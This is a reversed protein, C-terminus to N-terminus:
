RGEAILRQFAPDQRIREWEPAVRLWGRSLWRQEDLNERLLRVAPEPQGLRAHILALQLSTEAAVGQMGDGAALAQARRGERVAADADGLEAHLRALSGRVLAEIRPPLPARELLPALVSRGSRLEGTAETTRGAAAHAEARAQHFWALGISDTGFHAPTLDFLTRHGGPTWALYAGQGNQVTSLVFAHKGVERMGSGLVSRARATDMRAAIAIEARLLYAVQSAPERALVEDLLAESGAYDGVARRARALTLVRATNGPDLSLARESLALAERYRADQHALAALRELAEPDNPQLELARRYEAAARPAAHEITLLYDGHVLRALALEPNLQLARDISSKARQRVQESADYLGGYLALQFEGLRAHASAFAPDLAVARSYLDIARLANAHWSTLRAREAAENGRLFYDYADLNETPRRTLARTERATLQAQLADAISRAIESQVAFIDTIDRDYNSAWLNEDTSARVLKAGIRVQDGARRVTGELVYAVGLERAIEPLSMSTGKYRMISTRSIVRLDGIVALNTLIEDTIGDSFYENSTDDSLNVFPLVAISRDVEELTLTARQFSGGLLVFAGGAFALVLVGGVAAIRQGSWRGSAGRLVPPSSGGRAPASRRTARRPTRRVGEPTIDFAWALVLAIPFGLIVFAVLARYAWEPLLLAPFILDAAQIVVFGVAAYVAAVRFVRRRRLEALFPKM